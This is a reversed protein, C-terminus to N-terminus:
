YFLWTNSPISSHHFGQPRQVLKNQNATYQETHADYQDTVSKLYADSFYGEPVSGTLKSISYAEHLYTDYKSQDANHLMDYRTQYTGIRELTSEDKAADSNTYGTVKTNMSSEVTDNIIDIENRVNALTEQIGSFETPLAKLLDDSQQQNSTTLQTAKKWFKNNTNIGAMRAKETIYKRYKNKMTVM